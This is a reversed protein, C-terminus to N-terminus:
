PPARPPQALRTLLQEWDAFYIYDNLVMMTTFFRQRKSIRSRAQNWLTCVQDCVTHFAFAILNLTLLLNSLGKQGHGFNHTINYGNNKLINFSENEIKWRARACNALAVINTNKPQISTIFSNRYTTEGRYKIQMDFWWVQLADKGGRIPLRYECWRYTRTERGRGKARKPRTVKRQLELGDLYDYLTTHSSPKATFLFDGGLELLEQCFPQHAFLDDALYIPRLPQYRQLNKRIWRKGANLECDQKESGDQPRIFEPRLPVVRNHGDAVLTACLVNHFYDVKDGKTRTSCQPCQIKRSFHFQSGDLAILTRGNLRLFDDLGQNQQLQEVAHDFAPYLQECDSGDLTHRIHNDTPIRNIGFLSQCANRNHAEHFRQQHDLFSPSQMFFVSFAAMGIDDFRYRTNSGNRPDPMQGFCQRLQEILIDVTPKM